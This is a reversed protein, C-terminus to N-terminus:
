FLPYLGDKLRHTSIRVEYRLGDTEWRCKGKQNNQQQLHQKSVNQFTGKLPIQFHYSDAIHPGEKHADTHGEFPATVNLKLEEKILESPSNLPGKSQSALENGQNEENEHHSISYREEIKGFVVNQWCEANGLLPFEQANRDATHNEYSM